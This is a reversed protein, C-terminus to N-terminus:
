ILSMDCGFFQFVVKCVFRWILDIFNVDLIDFFFNLVNKNLVVLFPSVPLTHNLERGIPTLLCDLRKFLLLLSALMGPKKVYWESFRVNAVDRYWAPIGPSSIILLVPCWYLTYSLVFFGVWFHQVLHWTNQLSSDWRRRPILKLLRGVFINFALCHFM